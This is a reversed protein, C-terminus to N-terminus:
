EEDEEQDETNTYIVCLMWLIIWPFLNLFFVLYGTMCCAFMLGRVGSFCRVGRVTYIWVAYLMSCVGILAILIYMFVFVETGPLFIDAIPVAELGLSALGLIWFLAQLTYFPLVFWAILGSAAIAWIRETTKNQPSLARLLRGRGLLAKARSVQAEKAEPSLPTEAREKRRERSRVKRLLEPRNLAAEIRRLPRPAAM